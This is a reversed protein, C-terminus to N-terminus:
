AQKRGMIKDVIDSVTEIDATDEQSISVGTKAELNGILVLIELSSIDLDDILSSTPTIKSKDIKIIDALEDTVIRTIEERDM